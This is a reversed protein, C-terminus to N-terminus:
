TKNEKKDLVDEIKDDDTCFISDLSIERPPMQCYYLCYIAQGLRYDPHQKWYEGLKELIRPIRAPDRMLLLEEGSRIRVLM